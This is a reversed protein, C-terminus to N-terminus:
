PNPTSSQKKPTYLSFAIRLSRELFENYRDTFAFILVIFALMVPLNLPQWFIKVNYPHVIVGFLSFLLLIALTTAIGINFLSIFTFRRILNIDDVSLTSIIRSRADRVDRPEIGFFGVEQMSERLTPSNIIREAIGRESIDKKRLIKRISNSVIILIKSLSSIAHGMAYFIAIMFSTPISKGVSGALYNPLIAADIMYILGIVFIAGPIILGIVDLFFKEISSIAKDIEM